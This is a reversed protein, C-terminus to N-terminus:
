KAPPRSSASLSRGRGPPLFTRLLRCSTTTTALTQPEGGLAARAPADPQRAHLSSSAADGLGNPALRDSQHQVVVVALRPPFFIHHPGSILASYTARM